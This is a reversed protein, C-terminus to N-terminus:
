QVQLKRPTNRKSLRSASSTSLDRDVEAAQFVMNFSFIDMSVLVESMTQSMSDGADDGQTITIAVWVWM